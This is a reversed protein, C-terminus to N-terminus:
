NRAVAPLLGKVKNAVISWFVTRPYWFDAPLIIGSPDRFYTEYDDSYKVLDEAITDLEEEGTNDDDKPVHELLARMERTKAPESQCSGTEHGTPRLIIQGGFAGLLRKGLWTPM